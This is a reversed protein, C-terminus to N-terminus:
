HSTIGYPAAQLHVGRLTGKKVNLSVSCQVVAPNLGHSEFEKQCYTRAFFGREDCNSELHIEFIGPLKTEHFTM